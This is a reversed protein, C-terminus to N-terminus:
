MVDTHVFQASVCVVCMDFLYIRFYTSPQFPVYVTQPMIFSWCLLIYITCYMAAYTKTCVYTRGNMNFQLFQTRTSKKENSKRYQLGMM